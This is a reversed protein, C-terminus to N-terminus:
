GIGRVREIEQVAEPNELATLDGAERGLYAAKIVRRMIKANRTKPLASVFLIAEPVLPRGMEQAIRERLEKALAEGAQAGPRLVAFCVATEGKVDHPVGIAAAEQVAPHGVLV